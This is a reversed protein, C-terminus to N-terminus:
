VPLIEHWGMDSILLILNLSSLLFKMDELELSKLLMNKIKYILNVVSLPEQWFSAKGLFFIHIQVKVSVTKNDNNYKFFM